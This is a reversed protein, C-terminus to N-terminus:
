RIGDVVCVKDSAPQKLLVALPMVRDIIHQYICLKAYEDPRFYQDEGNFRTSLLTDVLWDFAKSIDTIVKRAVEADKLTLHYLPELPDDGPIGQRTNELNEQPISRADSQYKYKIISNAEGTELGRIAVGGHVVDLAVRELQNSLNYLNGDLNKVISSESESEPPTTVVPQIIAPQHTFNPMPTVGHMM